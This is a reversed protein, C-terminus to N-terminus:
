INVVKKSNITESYYIIAERIFDSKSMCLLERNSELLKLEDDTLRAAIRNTANDKKRCPRGRM